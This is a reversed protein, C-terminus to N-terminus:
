GSGWLWDWYRGVWDFADGLSPLSPRASTELAVQGIVEGDLEAVLVPEEEIYDPM